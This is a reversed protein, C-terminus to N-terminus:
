YSIGRLKKRIVMESETITKVGNGLAGKALNIQKALKDMGQVEVSCRQDTGWMYHSLTIHREIIMAGLAVATTTTELGYEHGSYGVVHGYRKKLASIMNLNLEDDNAPYSSNCHLIALQCSNGEIIEVARDIEEITSMGTSIIIPVEMKSSENLLEENTILASPIKIFPVDYNSIFNLSDLDWVSVTWDLPKYSCYEAIHDYEAKGFEMRKKYELYTMTGWPTEKEVNKQHEPIAVDPNRKQFKACNWGCAYTADLLRKSVELSGNHNIGIEAILYPETLEDFKM